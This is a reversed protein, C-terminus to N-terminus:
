QKREGKHQEFVREAYSIEYAMINSLQALSTEIASQNYRGSYQFKALVSRIINWSEVIKQPFDQLEQDIDLHKLKYAEVRKAAIVTSLDAILKEARTELVEREHVIREFDKHFQQLMQIGKLILPKHILSNERFLAVLDISEDAWEKKAIFEYYTEPQGAHFHHLFGEYARKIDEFPIEQKEYFPSELNKHEIISFVQRLRDCGYILLTHPHHITNYTDPRISEYFCDVWVVVPRKQMLAQLIDDIITDTQEKERLMIGQTQLIAEIPLVPQYLATLEKEPEYHYVISDNILFPMISRKLHIVAPFASSYFCSKYIFANFPEIDQLAMQGLQVGEGPSTAQTQTPHDRGLLKAAYQRITPNLFITEGELTLDERELEVELKVALLSNGGSEFFNEDIGIQAVGLAKAWLTCLKEELANTPPISSGSRVLSTRTEGLQQMLSSVFPYELPTYYRRHLLNAENTLVMRWQFDQEPESASRSSLKVERVLPAVAETGTTLAAVTQDEPLPANYYIQVRHTLDSSLKNVDFSYRTYEETQRTIIWGTRAFFERVPQNRTTPYYSAELQVLGRERCYRALTELIADEITRGLVRCSLLFTDLFLTTERQQALVTGSVGYSGFRDMVEITWCTVDPRALLAEIQQENRRITNLNFQNTRQTMQAVRPIHKRDLLNMSMKLSLGQLFAEYSHIEERAEQRRKEAIYMNTRQQDEATIRAKDLAWIRKLFLPIHSSLSPLQLTLVEPCYAMLEACEAASDDIVIFSKLDLQLESAIERVNQSKAQWNIRWTVFDEKKLLMQPHSDFVEWVDRENNKSCLALLLGEKRKQLMFEQFARFPEDLRIGTPGDEGVIGSWLTNDCDLIIVKFPHQQWAFVSRAIETGVAAYFADTFPLHAARNTYPDFVESIRYQDALATCDLLYVNDLSALTQKWRYNLMAIYTQLVASTQSAEEPLLAIVYPITKPKQSIAQVLDQFNHELKKVQTQEDAHDDRLWDAFRILLVNVGTNSSLLSAPDFLDQFVQNYASFRINLRCGFREGWWRIYAEVPDAVFTASIVLSIEPLDAEPTTREPHTLASPHEEPFLHINSLTDAPNYAIQQILELFHAILGEITGKLYLHNNYQLVCKHEGGPLDVIDLKLDLKSTDKAFEYEEFEVNEVELKINPDYENHYVFMADFLPNRDRPIKKSLKEVLLDFPYDQNDYAELLLAQTIELFETFTANPNISNRVPLFNTFLGILGAVEARRRGAVLSGVIIDEQGTYKHLLLTYLSYFITNLTVNQSKALQRLKQSLECSLVFQITEGAFDQTLSRPFDLPMNLLPIDSFKELWYAEQRKLYPSELFRQQWEAYDKYQLTLPALEEGKYLQCFEKVFINMSAGDAIINHMDLLLAYKQEALQILTVRLLPARDLHFPQIFDRICTDLAAEEARTSHISFAINEHVQQVPEGDIFAFTTRLIEHRQILQLLAAESREKDLQGYALLVMPYNYTTGLGINRQVIYTRKQSSSLAYYPKKEAPMIEMYATAELQQIYESLTGVTPFQFIDKLRVTVGCEKQLRSVLATAKLSDGGVDFFSDYSSAEVGLLDAWIKLIVKEYKNAERELAEELQEHSSQTDESLNHENKQPVINVGVSTDLWFRQRQFPYTPLSLRQRRARGDFAAWDLEVGGQQWL